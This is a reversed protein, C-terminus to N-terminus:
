AFMRTVTPENPNVGSRGALEEFTHIYGDVDGDKM